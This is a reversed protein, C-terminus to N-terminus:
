HGSAPVFLFSRFECREPAGRIDPGEGLLVERVLTMDLGGLRDLFRQRNLVWSVYETAYGHRYPRQVVTFSPAGHVVPLRAVYFHRRAARALRRAVDEWDESYELSGSALVFDYDRAFCTEDGEHFTVSSHLERGAKCLLPLDRCHYEIDVGPLLTQSILRYHGLGGGWDLLSLRDRMRAALTLAYGYAMLVTNAEPTPRALDGAWLHVPLPHPLSVLRLFEPWKAQQTAVVSEVNWGRARVGPARWGDELREWEPPTEGELMRRALRRAFRGLSM